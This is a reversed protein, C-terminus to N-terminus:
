IPLSSSRCWCRRGAVEEGPNQQRLLRSCSGNVPSVVGELSVPRGFCPVRSSTLRLLLLVTRLHTERVCPGSDRAHIVSNRMVFATIAPDPKNQNERDLSM